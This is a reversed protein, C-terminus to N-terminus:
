YIRKIIWPYNLTIKFSKWNILPMDFRYTAHWIYTAHRMLLQCTSYLHCTSNIIPMDFKLPENKLKLPIESTVVLNESHELMKFSFKTFTQKAKVYFFKLSLIFILFFFMKKQMQPLIQRLAYWTLLHKFYINLNRFSRMIKIFLGM